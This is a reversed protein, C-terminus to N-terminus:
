TPNNIKGIINSATIKSNTTKKDSKTQNNVETPSLTISPANYSTFLNANRRGFVLAHNFELKGPTARPPLKPAIDRYDQYAKWLKSYLDFQEGLFKKQEEISLYEDNIRSDFTSVNPVAPNLSPYKKALQDRLLGNLERIVPGIDTGVINKFKKVIDPETEIGYAAKMAEKNTTVSTPDLTGYTDKIEQLLKYFEEFTFTIRPKKNLIIAM